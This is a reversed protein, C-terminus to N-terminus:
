LGLSWVADHVAERSVDGLSLSVSSSLPGVGRRGVGGAAALGTGRIQGADDGDGDGNAAWVDHLAALLPERGHVRAAAAAAAHLMGAASLAPELMALGLAARPLPLSPLEDAVAAAFAATAKHARALAPVLLAADRLGEDPGGLMQVALRAASAAAAEEAATAANTAAAAVTTVIDSGSILGELARRTEATMRHGLAALMAEAHARPRPAERACRLLLLQLGATDRAAAMCSYILELGAEGGGAEATAAMEDAGAHILAVAADGDAASAAICLARLAPSATSLPARTLSMETARALWAAAASAAGGAAAASEVALMAREMVGWLRAPPLVGALASVHAAGTRLDSALLAGALWSALQVDDDHGARRAADRWALRLRAGAGSGDTTHAIDLLAAAVGRESACFAGRDDDAIFIAWLEEWLGNPLPAARLLARLQAEDARGAALLLARRALAAAAAGGAGGACAVAARELAAPQLTLLVAAAAEVFVSASVAAEPADGAGLWHLAVQWLARAILAGEDPLGGGDAADEGWARLLLRLPLRTRATSVAATTPGGGAGHRAASALRAALLLAAPGKPHLARLVCLMVYSLEASLPPQAGESAEACALLQAALDGTGIAAGGALLGGFYSPEHPPPAPVALAPVAPLAAGDGGGSGGGHQEEMLSSVPPGGPVYRPPQEVLRRAGGGYAGGAAELCLRPLAAQPLRPLGAAELQPLLAWHLLLARLRAPASPLLAASAARVADPRAPYYRAHLAALLIGAELLGLRPAVAGLLPLLWAGGSRSAAGVGRWEPPDSDGGGGDAALLTLLARLLAPTGLSLLASAAAAPSQSRLLAVDFAPSGDAAATLADALAAVPPWLLLLSADEISSSAAAAAPEAAAAFVADAVASLERAIAAELGGADGAAAGAGAGGGSSCSAEPTTLRNRAATAARLLAGPGLARLLEAAWAEGAGAAPAGRQAM